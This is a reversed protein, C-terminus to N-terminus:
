TLVTGSPALDGSGTFRRVGFGSPGGGGGADGLAASSDRGAPVAPVPPPPRTFRRVGFGAPGGGGGTDVLAASSVRGALM